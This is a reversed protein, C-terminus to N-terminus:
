SEDAFQVYAKGEHVAIKLTSFPKFVERVKAVSTSEPLPGIEILNSTM